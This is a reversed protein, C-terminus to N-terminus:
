DWGFDSPELKFKPQYYPSPVDLGYYRRWVEWLHSLWIKIMKRMSALHVRMYSWGRSSYESKARNYIRCYPSKSRLFSSGVQYCLSKMRPSYSAKGSSGFREHEGDVIGMGCYRWLASVTVAKEIDIEAFLTVAIVSGVGQVRSTIEVIPVSNKFERFKRDLAREQKVLLLYSERVEDPIREGGYLRLINTLSIRDRVIVDRARVLVKAEERLHQDDTFSKM